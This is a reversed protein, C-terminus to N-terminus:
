DPPRHNTMGRAFRWPGDTDRLLITFARQPHEILAGGQKPTLVNMEEGRASGM